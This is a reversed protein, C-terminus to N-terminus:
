LSARAMPIGHSIVHRIDLTKQGLLVLDAYKGIAISGYDAEEGIAKAPNATACLIASELPIRAHLAAYKMCDMLDMASGALTGDGLIAHSKKVKVSLGGLSYNGDPMGAAMMSDSVFIIRSDGFLAFSARLISPSLHIGDCVLEAMVHGTDFAAGIPGPNRHHFPPMANFMHTLHDAGAEFAKKATEYDCETHGLSFHVKSSFQQIFDIAGKREPALTMLKLLGQSSKFLESFFDADVEAIHAPNQAGKYRPSLFPGELHIGCLRAMQGPRWRKQFSAANECISVLTEFPLTMAAPCISTIGRSLEYAAIADLAEEKPDSFDYGRCGHFHIDILGPILYCGLADIVIGDSSSEAIRCGKTHVDMKLFRCDETFVLANQITM